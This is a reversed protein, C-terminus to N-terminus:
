KSGGCAGGCSETTVIVFASTTGWQTPSGVCPWYQEGIQVTYTADSYYEKDISNCPKASAPNNTLATSLAIGFFMSAILIALLIRRKLITRLM